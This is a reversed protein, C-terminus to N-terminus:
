WAPLSWPRCHIPFGPLRASGSFATVDEIFLSAGLTVLISAVLLQHPPKDMIPKLLLLYFGVGLLMFVPIVLIAAIFPNIGLGVFLGYSLLSGLMLFEGHALNLVNLFGLPLPFGSHRWATFVAWYFGASWSSSLIRLCTLGKLDTRNLPRVPISTNEPQWM